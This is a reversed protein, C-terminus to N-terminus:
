VRAPWAVATMKWPAYPGRMRQTHMAAALSKSATGYPRAIFFGAQQQLRTSRTQPQIFIRVRFPCRGLVSVTFFICSDSQVAGIRATRDRRGLSTGLNKVYDCSRKRDRGTSRQLIRRSARKQFAAFGRMSKALLAANRLGRPPSHLSEFTRRRRLSKVSACLPGQCATQM